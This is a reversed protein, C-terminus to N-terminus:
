VPWWYSMSDPLNWGFKGYYEADKRLLNSRHSDHLRKDGLWEPREDKWNWDRKKGIRHQVHHFFRGHGKLWHFEELQNDRFGRSIWETCIAIGYDCLIDPYGYWMKVAPHNKWRTEPYNADLERLIGLAELRQKGLRRYDLCDATDEFDEYPLFTQM